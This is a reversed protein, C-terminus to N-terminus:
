GPSPTLCRLKSFSLLASGELIEHVQDESSIAPATWEVRDYGRSARGFFGHHGLTSSIALEMETAGTLGLWLHQAAQTGM